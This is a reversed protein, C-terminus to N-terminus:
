AAGRQGTWVRRAREGDAVTPKVLCLSAFSYDFVHSGHWGWDAGGFLQYGVQAFPEGLRRWTELNFIRRRMWHFHRNDLGDASPMDECDVTLFLLGGPVLVRDLHLLFGSLEEVHELVSVCLVADAQWGWGDLPVNVRPDVVSCRLHGAFYHDVISRLPSGAGGVDLVDLQARQQQGYYSTLARLAMGYEWYRQEHQGAMEQSFHERIWEVEENLFRYDDPSLTKTLPLTLAIGGRGANNSPLIM